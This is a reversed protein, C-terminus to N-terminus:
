LAPVQDMVTFKHYPPISVIFIHYIFPAELDVEWGMVILHDLITLLSWLQLQQRELKRAYNTPEGASTVVKQFTPFSSRRPDSGINWSKKSTYLNFFQSSCWVYAHHVGVYAHHVGVSIISSFKTTQFPGVKAHMCMYWTWCKSCSFM